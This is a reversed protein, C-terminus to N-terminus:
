KEEIHYYSYNDYIKERLLSFFEYIKKDKDDHTINILYNKWFFIRELDEKEETIMNM